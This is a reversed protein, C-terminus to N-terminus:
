GCPTGRGWCTTRMDARRGVAARPRAADNVKTTVTARTPSPPETAVASARRQVRLGAGVGEVASLGPGSREGVVSPEDGVAEVAVQGRGALRRASRRGAAVVPGCGHVVSGSPPLVIKTIVERTRADLVTTGLGLHGGGHQQGPERRRLLRIRPRGPPFLTMAGALGGGDVLEVAFAAGGATWTRAAGAGVSSEAHERLYPVPVETWRQIEGDQCAAFVADVDDPRRPRLRV